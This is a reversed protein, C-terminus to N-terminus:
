PASVLAWGIDRDRHWWEWRSLAYTDKYVHSIQEVRRTGDTHCYVKALQQVEQAAIAAEDPCVSVAGCTWLHAVLLHEQLGDFSQAITDGRLVVLGEGATRFFSVEVEVEAHVDHAEHLAFRNVTNHEDATVAIEHGHEVVTGIMAHTNFDGGKVFGHGGSKTLAAVKEDVQRHEFFDSDSRKSSVFYSFGADSIGPEGIKHSFIGDKRIYKNLVPIHYVTGHNPITRCAIYKISYKFCM